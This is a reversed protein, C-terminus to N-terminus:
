IPHDSRSIFCRCDLRECPLQKDQWYLDTYHRSAKAEALCEPPTRGDEIVRLRWYPATEPCELFKRRKETNIYATIIRHALLEGMERYDPWEDNEEDEVPLPKGKGTLYAEYRPWRVRSTEFFQRCARDFQRPAKGEIANAGVPFLSTLALHQDPFDVLCVRWFVEEFLDNM